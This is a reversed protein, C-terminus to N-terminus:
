ILKEMIQFKGKRWHAYGVVRYGLSRYLAIAAPNECFTDLRMTKVGKNMSLSEAFKMASFGVGCNQFDPNVALRHVTIFPMHPLQWTCKEYESDCDCNLAFSCMLIGDSEGIWLSQSLIDSNVDSKDPYLEDWQFIGANCMAATVKVYHKYVKDEDELTARRFHLNAISMFLFEKREINPM